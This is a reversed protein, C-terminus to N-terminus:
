MDFECIPPNKLCELHGVRWEGKIMKHVDLDPIEVNVSTTNGGSSTPQTTVPMRQREETSM